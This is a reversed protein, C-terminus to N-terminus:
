RKPMQRRIIGIEKRLEKVEETLHQMLDTLDCLTTTLAQKNFYDMMTDQQGPTVNNAKIYELYEQRNDIYIEKRSM